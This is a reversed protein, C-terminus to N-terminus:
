LRIDARSSKAVLYNMFAACAVLMFRADESKLNPEDMLAHRIGEADSTYGYLCAFARELAPHLGVKVKVVKLTQGLEAKPDGAIVRAIAEIASISEKISNRYDPAKRDALLALASTLHENVAKLPRSVELAKEVAETEEKCTIEVIEGGVFRYGSLERELVTNCYRKFLGNVENDPYYNPMFEIFDYVQNWLTSANFFYTRIHKYTKKWEDPLTDLPLGFYRDWMFQCLVRLNVNDPNSLSLHRSIMSAQITDWYCTTLANWLGVRLEDDMSNLQMVTKVPKLGRRQSFSNM